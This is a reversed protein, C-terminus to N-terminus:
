LYAKVLDEELERYFDCYGMPTIAYLMSLYIQYTDMDIGYGDAYQQCVQEFLSHMQHFYEVSTARLGCSAASYSYRSHENNIDYYPDCCGDIAIVTGTIIDMFIKQSPPPAIKQDVEQKSYTYVLYCVCVRGSFIALVPNAIGHPIKAGDFAVTLAINDMEQCPLMHAM